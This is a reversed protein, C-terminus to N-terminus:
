SRAQAKALGGSTFRLRRSLILAISRYFRAGVHPLTDFIKKLEDLEYSDAVVARDATVTASTVSDEIFAMEGVVDGPGLTAVRVAHDGDLREIRVVGDQILLLSRPKSGQRLIIEDKAFSMRRAKAELIKWDQATLYELATPM